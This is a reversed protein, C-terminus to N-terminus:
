VLKPLPNPVTDVVRYVKHFARPALYGYKWMVWSMNDDAIANECRDGKFRAGRGFAQVMGMMAKYGRYEPDDAERAKVIKSPPEFPVKCIFQHECDTGPFDYGVGVSPSCLLAGPGAQKFLEVKDSTVEGRDNFIMQNAYRSYSMIEERRDHSVTHIIGKRDQRRSLWQDLRMWLMSRDPHKNDVRQTPIYYIPCDAPNFDSDYELFLYDPGEEGMHVYRKEGQSIGVMQLTKPRITASVMYISEIGLFLVSEAYRGPRIPDFQFGQEIEDVVWNDPRITSITGLRRILHRMHNLRKVWASKPNPSCQIKYQTKKFDDEAYLRTSVAWAKWVMMDLTEPYRPFPVQLTEEIEKHHFVVQMASAIAEPAFHAEDFIVQKIHGLGTGRNRSYIWKSYNTVVLNSTAAAFEAQSAPCKITGKHPCQVAYGEECTYDSRLSCPYNNRGRLDVMGISSFDDLYQQQLGKTMTVIATPIGSQISTAVVPPSKGGGTPICGVKFRKQTQGTRELWDAQQPRWSDFKPPLGLEQPTALRM